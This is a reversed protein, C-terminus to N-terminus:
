TTKVPRNIEIYRCKIGVDVGYTDIFYKRITWVNKIYDEIREIRDEKGIAFRKNPKRLSVSYEKCWDRVWHRGFKLRDNKPIDEAQQELWNQYFGRCKRLFIMLPLRGKLAGRVDLFWEFVADRVEPEKPKRGGGSERSRKKPAKENEDEIDNWTNKLISKHCRVALTSASKFSKDDHKANKLDAYFNRVSKLIYGKTEWGM